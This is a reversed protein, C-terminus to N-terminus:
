AFFIFVNRKLTIAVYKKSNDVLANKNAKVQDRVDEYHENVIAIFM